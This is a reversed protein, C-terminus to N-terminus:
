RMDIPAAGYLHSFKVCHILVSQYHNLAISDSLLYRQSGTQKRLSDVILAGEPLATKGAVTDALAPSLVLHLDPGADTQFDEQLLLILHGEGREIRYRGRTSMSERGEFRGEALVERGADADQDPRDPNSCGAWIVTGLATLFLGWRRVWDSSRQLDFPM